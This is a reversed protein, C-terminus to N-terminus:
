GHILPYLLQSSQLFHLANSIAIYTPKILHCELPLHACNKIILSCQFGVPFSLFYAEAIFMVDKNIALLIRISPIKFNLICDLIDICACVNIIQSSKLNATCVTSCPVLFSIDNIRKKSAEFNLYINM